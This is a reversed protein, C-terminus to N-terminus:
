HYLNNARSAQWVTVSQVRMPTSSGAGLILVLHQRDIVGFTWPTAATPPPAQNTFQSYTIARGVQGGDFYYTISGKKTATAPVWLLGYRHYASFNTGTPVPRVSIDYSSSVECYSKCTANWIGSWDHISGYYAAPHAAGQDYEFIDPEIFHEYGTKQGVWQDGHHGDAEELALTWWAPWGTGLNVAKADFSLTAEFYGGGGFAAGRFYPAAPIEAASAITAEFNNTFSAVTISGDTNLTTTPLRAPVTSCLNFFYWQYGSAYTLKQDVTQPTFNSVTAFTETRYGVAAAQPPVSPVSPAAAVKAGVAIMMGCLAARTTLRHGSSAAGKATRVGAPFGIAM